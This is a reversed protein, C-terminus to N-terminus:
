TPWGEGNPPHVKAAGTRKLNRQYVEVPLISFAQTREDRHRAAIAEVDSELTERASTVYSKSVWAGLLGSAVRQGGILLLLTIGFWVMFLLLAGYVWAANSWSSDGMVVNWGPSVVGVAAVIVMVGIWAVAQSSDKWREWTVILPTAVVCGLLLAVVSRGGVWSPSFRLVMALSLLSLLVGFVTRVVAGRRCTKCVRTQDGHFSRWVYGTKTEGDYRAKGVHAIVYTKSLAGAGDEIEAECNVCRNPNRGYRLHSDTMM